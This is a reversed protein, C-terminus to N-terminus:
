KNRKVVKAAHIQVDNLNIRCVYLGNRLDAMDVRINQAGTEVM